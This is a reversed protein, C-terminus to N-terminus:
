QIAKISGLIADIDKSHKAQEENSGWLTLMILRNKTPILTFSVNTPGNKDKAKFKYITGKPPGEVEIVEPDGQPKIGQEEMWEDTVEMMKDIKKKDAYEVYFAVDENPSSASFGFDIESTEWTDPIALTIAPDNTPVAFNKAAAPVALAALLAAALLMTKM